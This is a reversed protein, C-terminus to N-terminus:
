TRVGLVDLAALAVLGTAGVTIVCDTTTKSKMTATLKGLAAPGSVITPIVMYATDPWSKPWTVTVDVTGVVLDTLPVGTRQTKANVLALAAQLAQIQDQLRRVLRADAKGRMANRLTADTM